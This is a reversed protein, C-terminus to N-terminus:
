RNLQSKFNKLLHQVFQNSQNKWRFNQLETIVKKQFNKHVKSYCWMKHYMKYPPAQVSLINDIPFQNISQISLIKFNIEHHNNSSQNQLKSITYAKLLYFTKFKNKLLLIIIHSSQHQFRERSFNFFNFHQKDLIGCYFKDLM